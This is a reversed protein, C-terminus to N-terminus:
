PTTRGLAVGGTSASSSFALSEFPLSCGRAPARPARGLLRINGEEIVIQDQTLVSICSDVNALDIFHALGVEGPSVEEYSTPDLARVRLWPPAVYAGMPGAHEFLQSSLETMGYEGIIETEDIGFCRAISRRLDAEEVHRSRGKFGGTLMVKTRSPAAIKEGDLADLAAVMAFSTALVYLPESRHKALRAARKLGEIDVGQANILFRGPENEVFAAGEPQALLPRGDFHRVFLEMMHGLSSSGDPPPSLAVIVGRGHETFLTRRAQILTLEEKTQLRRVPHRGTLEATTGSTIFVAADLEPPHLAVRTLRFVDSPVVPLQTLEKLQGPEFPCLRAFGASSEMQFRGIDVALKEFSDGLLPRKRDFSEAFAVVRKHLAESKRLAPPASYDM